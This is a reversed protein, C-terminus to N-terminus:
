CPAREGFRWVSSTCSSPTSTRAFVRRTGACSRWPTGPSIASPREPPWTRIWACGRLRRHLYGPALGAVALAADFLSREPHKLRRTRWRKRLRKWHRRHKREYDLNLRLELPRRGKRRVVTYEDLTLQASIQRQPDVLRLGIRRRVVTVLLLLARVKIHSVLADRLDGGPFDAALRPVDGEPLRAAAMASGDDLRLLRYLRGRSQLTLGARYLRWDFTDHYRVCVEDDTESRIEYSATLETIVRRAEAISDLTLVDRPM